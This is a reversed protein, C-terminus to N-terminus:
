YSLEPTLQHDSAPMLHGDHQGGHERRHGGALVLVPGLGAGGPLGRRAGSAAECEDGGTADLRGSGGGFPRAEVGGAGSVVEAGHEGPGPRRHGAGIQRQTVEFRDLGGVAVRGDGGQGLEGLAEGGGAVVTAGGGGRLGGAGTDGAGQVGEVLRAYPM